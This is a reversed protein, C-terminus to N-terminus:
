FIIGAERLRDRLPYAFTESFTQTMHHSDSYVVAGFLVPQCDDPCFFDTFDVLIAQASLSAALAEYDTSILAESKPLACQTGARSNFVKAVCSSTGENMHPTDRIVVIRTGSRQLSEWTQQYDVIVDHENLAGSAVESSLNEALATVIVFNYAPGSQIADVVEQSWTSCNEFEKTRQGIMFTCSSKLYIDLQWGEETALKKLAPFWHGAHSDGVLAVRTESGIEGFQCVSLVLTDTKCENAEVPVDAEARAPDPTLLPWDVTSCEHGHTLSQAGFCPNQKLKERVKSESAIRSDLNLSAAISPSLTLVAAVLAALITVVPKAATLLHWRQLPRELLRTSMWAVGICCVLIAVKTAASPLAGFVTPYLLIAPWHWLYLSYSIGGLFVLPVHVVSRTGDNAQRSIGGAIVLATGVVPLAAIFGPFMSTPRILVASASLLIWGSVVLVLSSRSSLTRLRSVALAVLGGFGFEWMRSFTSFYGSPNETIALWGSWLFSLLVVVALLFILGRNTSTVGRRVTLWTGLMILVPWVLYFQEEVSLSWFQQVATPQNDANLYDVSDLALIWNEFYFTSGVAQRIFEHWTSQSAFILVVVSTVFIVVFAAPLLRRIRRAWFSPLNIRGTRSSESHLHSTILFGSIVFFVDVGIFGFPVLSPWLHFLVVGMVAFARLVQIDVRLATRRPKTLTTM